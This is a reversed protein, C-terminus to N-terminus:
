VGSVGPVGSVGSLCPVRPVGPVVPVGRIHVQIRMGSFLLTYYLVVLLVQFIEIFNSEVVYSM